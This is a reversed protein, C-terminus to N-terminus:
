WRTSHTAPGPSSPSRTSPRVRRSSASAHGVAEDGLEELALGFTFPKSASQITFPQHTEGVEYVAGDVTVLCIGFWSPDARGLEPIYTAVEGESCAVHREHLGELYHLVPSSGLPTSTSPQENQAM